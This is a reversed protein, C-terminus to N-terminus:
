RRHSEVPILGSHAGFSTHVEFANLFHAKNQNSPTNGSQFTKFTPSSLANLQGKERKDRIM